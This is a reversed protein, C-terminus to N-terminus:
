EAEEEGARADVTVTWGFQAFHSRFTEAGSGFYLIAQGQLPTAFEGEPSLFKIRGRPFCVASAVSALRYFWGTETANNVVVVAETVDGAEVHTALKAAFQAIASTGYPPNLFVKGQWPQSLGDDEETYHIKAKVIKQAVESTAPDLDITGLVKRVQEIYEPPTYWETEGSNNVVHPAASEPPAILRMADRISLNAARQWKAELEPWRQAVLTYARATRASGEFNQELWPLWEGHQCLQKAQILLEGARRAHELGTNLAQEAQRHEDNIQTALDTLSALPAQTADPITLSNHM